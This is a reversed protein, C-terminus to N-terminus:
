LTKESLRICPGKAVILQSPEGIASGGPEEITVILHSADTILRWRASDLDITTHNTNPELVALSRLQGDRKSQAWIELTHDPQTQHWELTLQQANSNHAASYSKATRWLSNADIHKTNSPEASLIALYDPAPSPWLSLLLVVMLLSGTVTGAMASPWWAFHTHMPKPTIKQSIGQWADPTPTREPGATSLPLLQEQWFTVHWQLNKSHALCQQFLWRSPGKLSGTVYDFAWNDASKLRSIFM